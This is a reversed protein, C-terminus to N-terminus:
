FFLKSGPHPLQRPDTGTSVLKKLIFREVSRALALAERMEKRSPFVPDDRYRVMVAYPTLATTAALKAFEGDIEVCARRLLEVNHTFEYLRGHWILWAKFAKEV